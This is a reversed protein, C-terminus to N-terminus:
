YKICLLQQHLTELIVTNDGNELEFWCSQSYYDFHLVLNNEQYLLRFYERDAGLVSEIITIDKVHELLTQQLKAIDEQYWDQQFQIELIQNHLNISILQQM